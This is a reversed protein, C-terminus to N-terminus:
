DILLELFFKSSFLWFHKKYLFCICHFTDKAGLFPSWHKSTLIMSFTNVLWHSLSHFPLYKAEIETEVMCYCWCDNQCANAAFPPVLSASVFLSCFMPSFFLLFSKNISFPFIPLFFLLHPPWKRTVHLNKKTKTNNIHWWFCSFVRFLFM